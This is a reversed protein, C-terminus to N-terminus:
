RRGARRRRGLGALLAGGAVLEAIAGPEPVVQIGGDTTTASRLTADTVVRGSGMDDASRTAALLTADENIVAVVRSALAVGTEGPITPVGLPTSREAFSLSITGGRATGGLTFAGENRCTRYCGDGDVRNGDDCQEPPEILHNGCSDLAAAVVRASPSQPAGGANLFSSQAVLTGSAVLATVQLTGISVPGAEGNASGGVVDLSSGDQARQFDIPNPGTTPTFGDIRVGAGFFHIKWGCVHNSTASVCIQTPDASGPGQPDYNELFARVTASGGVPIALALAAPKGGIADGNGSPSHFVLFTAVAAAPPAPLLAILALLRCAAGAIPLRKM